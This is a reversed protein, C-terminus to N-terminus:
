PGTEDATPERLRHLQREAFAARDVEGRQQSGEAARGLRRHERRQEVVVNCNLTLQLREVETVLGSAGGPSGAEGLPGARTAGLAQVRVELALDDGM